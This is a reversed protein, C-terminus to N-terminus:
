LRDTRNGHVISSLAREAMGWRTEPIFKRFFKTSSSDRDSDDWRVRVLEDDSGGGGGSDDHVIKHAKTAYQM